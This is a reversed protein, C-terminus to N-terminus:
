KVSELQEWAITQLKKSDEVSIKLHGAAVNDAPLSRPDEHYITGYFLLAALYSGLVSQHHNDTGWVNLPGEVEPTAPNDSIGKKVAAMFADGVPVWGQLSFDNAADRYSKQLEAQMSEMSAARHSKVFDPRAWTEYLWIKVAPNQAVFLEKLKQVHTRFSEKLTSDGKEVLPGYSLDHLIVIDWPKDILARKNEYHFSLAKGGVTEMSVTPKKGGAEAFVQFLAPVGGPASGKNLESVTGVGVSRPTYTFSNGVFLVSQAHLGTEFICALSALAPVLLLSPFKIKM